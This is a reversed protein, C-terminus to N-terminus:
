EAIGFLERQMLRKVAIECYKESLEIGVGRRGLQKCAVLTTGSGCFPDLIAGFESFRSLIKLWLTMPKPCPHKKDGGSRMFGVGGGGSVSIVDSKLQGNVKGKQEVDDGFMLIPFWQSFGFLGYSGTTNWTAAAIWKPEPFRRMNLISAAMAIRTSVRQLQPVVGLLLEGVNEPTDTFDLYEFGLGYPPDTLCLDFSKDPFLPLIDRCDGCYLTIGDESYYPTPLTLRDIEVQAQAAASDGEAQIYEQEDM